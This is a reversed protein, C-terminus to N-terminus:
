GRSEMKRVHVSFLDRVDTLTERAPDWIITPIWEDILAIMARLKEKGSTISSGDVIPRNRDVDQIISMCLMFINYKIEAHDFGWAVLNFTNRIVTALTQANFCWPYLTATLSCVMVALKIPEFARRSQLQTAANWNLANDQLLPQAPAPAADAPPDADDPANAQHNLGALAQNQLQQFQHQNAAAPVVVPGNPVMPPQGQDEPDSQRGPQPQHQQQPQQLRQKISRAEDSLGKVFRRIYDPTMDNLMPPLAMFVKEVQAVLRRKNFKEKQIWFLSRVISPLLQENIAFYTPSGIARKIWKMNDPIELVARAQPFVPPPLPLGAALVQVGAEDGNGDQDDDTGATQAGTAEEAAIPKSPMTNSRDYMGLIVSFSRYLMSTLHVVESHGQVITRGVLSSIILKVEEQCWLPVFKKQKSLTRFWNRRIEPRTMVNEQWEEFSLINFASPLYLSRTVPHAYSMTTQCYARMQKSTLILAVISELPLNVLIHHILIEAPLDM